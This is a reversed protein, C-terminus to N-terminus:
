IKQIVQYFINLIQLPNMSLGRRQKFVGHEYPAIRSSLEGVVAKKLDENQTKLDSKLM